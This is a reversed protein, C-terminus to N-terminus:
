ESVIMFNANSIHLIYHSVLLINVLEPTYTYIHLSRSIELIFFKEFMYLPSDFMVFNVFGYIM